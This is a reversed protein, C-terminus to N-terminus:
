LHVARWYHNDVGRRTAADSLTIGWGAFRCHDSEAVSAALILIWRGSRFTAGPISSYSMFLWVLVDARDPFPLPVPFPLASTLLLFICVDVAEGQEGSMWVSSSRNRLREDSAVNGHPCKGTWMLELPARTQRNFM